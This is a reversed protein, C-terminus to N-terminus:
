CRGKSWTWLFVPYRVPYLDPAARTETPLHCVRLFLRVNARLTPFCECVLAVKALVPTRMLVARLQVAPHTLLPQRRRGVQLPVHM